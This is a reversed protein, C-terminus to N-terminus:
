TPLDLIVTNDLGEVIISLLIQRLESVPHKSVDSGVIHNQLEVTANNLTRM